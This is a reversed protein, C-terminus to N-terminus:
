RKLNVKQFTTSFKQLASNLAIKAEAPNDFTDTYLTSVDQRQDFYQTTGLAIILCAAVGTISWWLTPRKKGLTRPAPKALNEVHATIDKWIEAPMEYTEKDTLQFFLAKDAQYAPAVDTKELDYRLTAIEEATMESEFFLLLRKEVEKM